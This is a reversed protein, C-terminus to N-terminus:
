RSWNMIDVIKEEPSSRQTQHTANMAVINLPASAWSRLSDLMMAPVIIIDAKTSLEALEEKQVDSLKFQIRRVPMGRIDGLETEDRQLAFRDCLAKDQGECETGDSFRFGHGPSLSLVTAGNKLTHTKLSQTLM